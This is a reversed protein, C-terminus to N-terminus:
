SLQFLLVLGPARVKNKLSFAGYKTEISTQPYIQIQIQRIKRFTGRLVKKIDKYKKNWFVRNLLCEQNFFWWFRTFGKKASFILVSICFYM